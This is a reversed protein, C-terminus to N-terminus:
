TGLVQCLKLESSGAIILLGWALGITRMIQSSSIVFYGCTKSHNFTSVRMREGSVEAGTEAETETAIPLFKTELGEHRLGETDGTDHGFPQDAYLVGAVRPSDGHCCMLM